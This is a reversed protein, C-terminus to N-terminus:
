RRMMMMGRRMTNNSSNSGDEDGKNEGTIVEQGEELGGRVVETYTNDTVGTRIMILKLNGEEDEIWVRGVDKRQSRQM